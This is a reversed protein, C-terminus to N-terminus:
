ILIPAASVSAITTATSLTQHDGFYMSKLAGFARYTMDNALTTVGDPVNNAHIDHLRGNNDYNYGTWVGWQNSVGTLENAYNYGYYLSYSGVGVFTRTEATMRSLSDYGYSVSDLGDTM